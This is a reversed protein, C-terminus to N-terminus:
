PLGIRGNDRVDNRILEGPSMESRAIKEELKAIRDLANVLACILDNTTLVGDALLRDRVDAANGLMFENSLAGSRKLADGTM